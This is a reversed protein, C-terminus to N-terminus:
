KESSFTGDARTPACRPAKANSSTFCIMNIGAKRSISIRDSKEQDPDFMLDDLYQDNLYLEVNDNRPHMSNKHITVIAKYRSTIQCEVKKGEETLDDLSITDENLKSAAGYSISLGLSFSRKTPDCKYEVLERGGDAKAIHPSIIFLIAVLLLLVLSLRRGM